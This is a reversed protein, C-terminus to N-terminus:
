SIFLEIFEMLEIKPKEKRKFFGRKQKILNRLEEVDPERSNDNIFRGYYLQQNSYCFVCKIPSIERNPRKLYFLVGTNPRAM